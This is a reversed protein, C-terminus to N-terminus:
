RIFLVSWLRSITRKQCPARPNGWIGPLVQNGGPACVKPSVTASETVGFSQAGGLTGSEPSNRGAECRKTACDVVVKCGGNIRKGAARNRLRLEGSVPGSRVGARLCFENDELGECHTIKGSASGPPLCFLVYVGPQLDVIKGSASGPPLCFLPRLGRPPVIM